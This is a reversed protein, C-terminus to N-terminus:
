VNKAYRETWERAMKKFGALDERYHHAVDPALPDHPNQDILLSSIGLLIKAITLAPSWQGCLLDLSIQGRDNINCHYIKTVFTVRPPKFPYDKPFLVRLQFLGGEYPSGEPGVIWATWLHIDEKLSHPSASCNMPPDRLLDHLEKCLRLFAGSRRMVLCANLGIERLVPRLYARGMWSVIEKYTMGGTANKWMCDACSNSVLARYTQRCIRSCRFLEEADDQLFSFVARWCDDSLGQQGM